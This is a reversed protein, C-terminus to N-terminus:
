CLLDEVRGNGVPLSASDMGIATYLIFIYTNRQWVYIIYILFLVFDDGPRLIPRLFGIM